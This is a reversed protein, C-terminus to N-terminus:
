DLTGIWHILPTTYCTHASFNLFAALALSAIVYKGPNLIHGVSDQPIPWRVQIDRFFDERYCYRGLLMFERLEGFPVWLERM